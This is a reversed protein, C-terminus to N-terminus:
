TKQCNGEYGTRRKPFNKEVDDDEADIATYMKKTPRMYLRKSRSKHFGCPHCNTAFSNNCRTIGTKYTKNQNKYEALDEKCHFSEM